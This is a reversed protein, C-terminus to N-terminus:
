AGPKQRKRLYDKFKNATFPSALLGAQIRRLLSESLVSQPLYAGTNVFTRLM